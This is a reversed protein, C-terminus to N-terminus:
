KKILIYACSWYRNFRGLERSLFLRILDDIAIRLYHTVPKSGKCDQKGMVPHPTSSRRPVPDRAKVPRNIVRHVLKSLVGPKGSGAAEDQAWRIRQTPVQFKSPKKSLQKHFKIKTVLWKNRLVHKPILYKIYSNQISSVAIKRHESVPVM